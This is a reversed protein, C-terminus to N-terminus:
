DQDHLKGGTLERIKEAPDQSRVLTEGVLVADAGAAKLMEVDAATKIGSESVLIVGDPVITALSVTHHVNTRFNTLDRNNIGVIKAGALLAKEIEEANHTEVLAELGLENCLGLYESLQSATLLGAILLLADASLCRSEYIQYEEIVFDKRLVPLSVATRVKTLDATSGQFYDQETLVSIARAGGREYQRALSEVDITLGLSGKSPSAKKVEAIVSMLPAQLSQGFPRLLDADALRAKLESLPICAKAANVREKKKAVIKSLM